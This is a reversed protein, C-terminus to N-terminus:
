REENERNSSTHEGRIVRESSQGMHCMRLFFSLIIHQIWHLRFSNVNGIRCMVKATTKMGLICVIRSDM